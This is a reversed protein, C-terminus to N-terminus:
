IKPIVKYKKLIKKKIRQMRRNYEDTDKLTLLDKENKLGFSAKLRKKLENEFKEENMINYEEELLDYKITEKLDEFESLRKYIDIELEPNKKQIKELHVQLREQFFIQFKDLGLIHTLELADYNIYKAVTKKDLLFKYNRVFESIDLDEFEFYNEEIYKNLASIQCKVDWDNLIEPGYYNKIANKYENIIREKFIRMMKPDNIKVMAEHGTAESVVTECGCSCSLILKNKTMHLNADKGYAKKCAHCMFITKEKAIKKYGCASCCMYYDDGIKKPYLYSNGCDPCSKGLNFSQELIPSVPDTPMGLNKIVDGCDYLDGHIKGESIRMVRGVMQKYLNFSKTPRAIVLANTDPIDFGMNIMSVSVLIEIYGREFRRIVDDPDDLKSHLVESIFGAKRYAEALLEAHLIDVAFVITKKSKLHNKTASVVAMVNMKKGLLQGLEKENYDGSSLLGISPLEKIYSLEDMVYCEVPALFGHKLLYTVDYEDIWKEFGRIKEGSQTYPTASLGIILSNKHKELLKQIMKGSYGYHVEDIFVVDPNLNRRHATQVTSILLHHNKDFTKQGEVSQYDLGKFEKQAQKTLNKRPTVFLVKKGQAIYELILAKAIRTKGGGTPLQILVRTAGSELCENVINQQYARLQYM